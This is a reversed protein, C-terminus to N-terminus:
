NRWGRAQIWQRMKALINEAKGATQAGRQTLSGNAQTSANTELSDEVAESGIVHSPSKFRFQGSFPTKMVYSFWEEAKTCHEKWPKKHGSYHLLIPNEMAERLELASFTKDNNFDEDTHYLDYTYICMM